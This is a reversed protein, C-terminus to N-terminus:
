KREGDCILIRQPIGIYEILDANHVYKTEWLLCKQNMNLFMNEVIAYKRPKPISKKINRADDWHRDILNIM